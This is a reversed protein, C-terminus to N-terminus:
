WFSFIFSLVINQMPQHLMLSIIVLEYSYLGRTANYFFVGYSIASGFISTYFLASLDTASLENLGGNFAPDNNLVSLAVLPIGGLLMHQSLLQMETDSQFM